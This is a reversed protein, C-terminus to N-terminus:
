LRELESIVRDLTSIEKWIDCVEFSNTTDNIRAFLVEKACKLIGIRKKVTKELKM